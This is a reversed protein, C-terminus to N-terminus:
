QISHPGGLRREQLRRKLFIVGKAVCLYFVWNALATTVYFLWDSRGWIQTWAGIITGPLGAVMLRIGPTSHIGRSESVVAMAGPIAIALLLTPLYIKRGM